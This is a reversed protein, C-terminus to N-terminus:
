TSGPAVQTSWISPLRLRLTFTLPWTTLKAATPLYWILYLQLFRAPVGDAVHTRVTKTLSMLQGLQRIFIPGELISAEKGYKSEPATQVSVRSPGVTAVTVFGTL